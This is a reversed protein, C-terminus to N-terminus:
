FLQGLTFLRRGWAASVCLGSDWRLQNKATSRHNKSHTRGQEWVAGRPGLVEIPTGVAQSQFLWM